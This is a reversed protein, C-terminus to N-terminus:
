SERELSSVRETLYKRFQEPPLARLRAMEEMTPNPRHPNGTSRELNDLLLVLAPRGEQGAGFSSRVRAVDAPVTPLPRGPPWRTRGVVDVLLLSAAVVAIFATPLVVSVNTGGAVALGGALIAIACLVATVVVNV